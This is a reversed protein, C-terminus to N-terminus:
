VHASAFCIEITPQGTDPVVDRGDKALEGNCLSLILKRFDEEDPLQIMLTQTDQVAVVVAGSRYLKYVFDLADERSAFRSPAFKGSAQIWARAEILSAFM